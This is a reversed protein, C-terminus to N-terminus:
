YHRFANLIVNELPEETAISYTEVYDDDGIFVYYDNDTKEYIQPFRDPTRRTNLYHVSFFKLINAQRYLVCYMSNEELIKNITQLEPSDKLM